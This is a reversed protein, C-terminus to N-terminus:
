GLRPGLVVSLWVLGLGVTVPVTIRLAQRAAVPREERLGFWLAYGVLPTLLVDALALGALQSSSLPRLAEQDLPKAGMSERAHELLERPPEPLAGERVRRAAEDLEDEDLHDRSFLWAVQRHEGTPVFGCSKCPVFPGKKPGACRHCIALRVAKRTAASAVAAVAAGPANTGSRGVGGEDPASQGAGSSM